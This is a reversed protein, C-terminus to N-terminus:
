GVFESLATNLSRECYAAVDFKVFETGSDLTDIFGQALGDVSNEVLLGFGPGLVGRNGVIDTALVPLGLSLAELLVMPQGEHDSALVFADAARMVPFPNSRQGALLISSGLSNSSIFAELEVRLPGEGLLILKADPKIKLHKSFAKFLKLHAKEPSMRGISVWTESASSVFDSIDQDVDMESDAYLQGYNILNNIPRFNSPNIDFIDGLEERNIDNTAESVSLLKDFWKNIKMTGALEPYKTTWEAYIRNHMFAVKKGTEPAAGLLASWFPAYGDFEIVSDFKAQGFIRIFERKFGNAYIEEQESSGWENWGNFKDIVWREELSTLHAGVRAIKQVFEPLSNFKEMRLPEKSFPTPDFLFVVRYEETDIANLLNIFASTIGNPLLSQHFLLVKKTDRPYAEMKDTATGFFADVTRQSAQGDERPSFKAIASLYADENQIGQSLASNICSELELPSRSVLGPMDEIDFYLGREEQYDELDPVHYIIPKNMPLYDFFISSYDTILVDSIAMVSESAIHEPVTIAPLEMKALISETMHHARFLLVTDDISGMIGLDRVLTDTDFHKTNLSGRWTPAYFIVRKGDKVGLERRLDLKTEENETLMRDIRPTGTRLFNGSYIGAIDYRDILVNETHENPSLLDTAQLFNRSVNAHEMFGTQIDKGLTKIPTGHWTNLYKQGDRRVFYYPFTVNNILHKASALMKLYLRSGRQVLVVNPNSKVDDPVKVEPTVVWYHRKSSYEDRKALERYIALPNCSVKGGFYSEYLVAEEDLELSEQFEVYEMIDRRWKTKLYQEPAIGDPRLFVRTSMFSSVATAKDGLCFAALGKHFYWTGAQESDRQCAETLFELAVDFQGSKLLKLGRAHMAGVDNRNVLRVLNARFLEQDYENAEQAELATIQQVLDAQAPLSRLFAELAEDIRGASVLTYALRFQWYPQEKSQFRIAADYASAAEDFRKQRELTLGLRYHWAPKEPNEEVASRLWASADQWLNNRDAALGISYLNDAFVNDNGIAEKYFRYAEPWNGKNQFYQGVVLKPEVGPKMATIAKLGRVELAHQGSERGSRVLGCANALSESGAAIAKAHAEASEKFRCLSSLEAGLRELWSANAPELALGYELAEIKQWTPSNKLTNTVYAASISKDASDMHIANALVERAEAYKKSSSYARALRLLGDKNGPQLAVAREYATAADDHRKTQEYLAGLRIHWSYNDSVLSIAKKTWLLSEPLNKLQFYANGVLYNVRGDFKGIIKEARLFEDVADEWRGSKGLLQGRKITAEAFLDKIVM